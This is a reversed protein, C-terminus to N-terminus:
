IKAARGGIKSLAALAATGSDTGPKDHEIAALTQVTSAAGREGLTDIIGVETKADVGKKLAGILADDVGEGPIPQLAWRAIDSLKPDHLLAALAGAEKETGIRRLQ